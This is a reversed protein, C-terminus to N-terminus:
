IVIREGYHTKEKKKKEKNFHVSDRGDDSSIINEEVDDTLKRKSRIKISCNQTEIPITEPKHGPLWKSFLSGFGGSNEIEVTPVPAKEIPVIRHEYTYGDSLYNDDNDSIFNSADAGLEFNDVDLDDASQFGDSLFGDMDDLNKELLSSVPKNTQNSIYVKYATSIYGKKDDLVDYNPLIDEENVIDIPYDFDKGPDYYSDNDRLTRLVFRHKRSINNELMKKKKMEEALKLIENREKESYVLARKYKKKPKGKTRSTLAIENENTKKNSKAVLAQHRRLHRETRQYIKEKNKLRESSRISQKPEQSKIKVVNDKSDLNSRSASKTIANSSKISKDTTKTWTLDDKDNNPQSWLKKSTNTNIDSLTDYTSIPPPKLTSSVSPPSIKFASSKQQPINTRGLGKFQKNLRGRSSTTTVNSAALSGLGSDGSFESYSDSKQM